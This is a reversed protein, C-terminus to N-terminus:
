KLTSRKVNGYEDVGPHNNIGVFSRSLIEAASWPNFMDFTSLHDMPIPGQPVIWIQKKKQHAVAMHIIHYIYIYIHMTFYLFGHHLILFKLWAICFCSPKYIMLLKDCIEAWRGHLAIDSSMKGLDLHIPITDWVQNRTSIGASLHSTSSWLVLMWQISLSWHHSIIPDRLLLGYVELFCKGFLVKLFERMINVDHEWSIGLINWLMGMQNTTQFMAKIVKGHMSPIDDDWSVFDMM